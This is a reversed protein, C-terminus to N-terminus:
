LNVMVRLWGIFELGAPFPRELTGFVFSEVISEPHGVADPVEHTFVGKIGRRASVSVSGRMMPEMPPVAFRESFEDISV